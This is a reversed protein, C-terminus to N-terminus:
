AQFGTNSTVGAIQDICDDGLTADDRLRVLRPHLRGEAVSGSAAGVPQWRREFEACTSTEAQYVPPM